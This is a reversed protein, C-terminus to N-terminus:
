TIHLKLDFKEIIKRSNKPIESITWNDQIKLKYFRSLHLIVDKPTCIKLIEKNILQEYIKYYLAPLCLKCVDM